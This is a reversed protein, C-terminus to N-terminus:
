VPSRRRAGFPKLLKRLAGEFLRRGRSETTRSLLLALLMVVVFIPALRALIPWPPMRSFLSEGIRGHVLYLPYTLSGLSMAVAPSVRVALRGRIMLVFLALFGLMVIPVVWGSVADPTIFGARQKLSLYIALVSAISLGTVRMASPGQAHILYFYCGVMFLPGYPHIAAFAALWPMPWFTCALSIVLWGALWSEIRHMQRFLLLAFILAYFRIEMELTWYVGDIMPVGVISPIMTANGLLTTASLRSDSIDPAGTPLAWIALASLLMAVWFTPFLRGARSICFELATRGQSSWLIVFGSIMFFLDVGLYGYRTISSLATAMPDVSERSPFSTVYHYLTVALAAAFRLVDLAALRGPAPRPGSLQM